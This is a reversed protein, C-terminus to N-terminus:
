RRPPWPVPITDSRWEPGIALRFVGRRLLSELMHTLRPLPTPRVWEEDIARRQGARHEEDRYSFEWGRYRCRGAATDKHAM